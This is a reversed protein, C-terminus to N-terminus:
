AYALLLFEESCFAFPRNGRLAGQVQPCAIEWVSRRSSPNEGLLSGARAWASFSAVSM